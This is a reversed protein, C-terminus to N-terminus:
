WIIWVGVILIFVASVGLTIKAAQHGGELSEGFGLDMALHKCGAVFHYILAALIAWYFLKVLFHDFWSQVTAFGEPGQMSLDFAWLLFAAGFFLAVGSIRHLISTIAPLPFKITTLDLNVPRQKKV